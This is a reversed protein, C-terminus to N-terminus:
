DEPQFLDKRLSIWVALVIGVLNLGLSAVVLRGDVVTISSMAFPFKLTQVLYGGGFSTGYFPIQLLAWALGLHYGLRPKWWMGAVAALGFVGLLTRSIAPAVGTLAFGLNSAVAAGAMLGILGILLFYHRTRRVRPEHGGRVDGTAIIMGSTSLMTGGRGSKRISRQRTSRDGCSGFADYCPASVMATVQLVGPVHLHNCRSPGVMPCPPASAPSRM